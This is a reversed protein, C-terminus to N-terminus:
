YNDIDESTDCEMIVGGKSINRINKVGTRLKNAIVINKAEMETLKCNQNENKPKIIVFNKASKAHITNLNSQLVSSYSKNALQSKIESIEQALQKTEMCHRGINVKLEDIIYNKQRNIENDQEKIIAEFDKM